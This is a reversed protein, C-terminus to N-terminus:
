RTLAVVRIPEGRGGGSSLTKILPGIICCAADLGIEFQPHNHGLEPAMLM